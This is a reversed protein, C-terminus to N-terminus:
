DIAFILKEAAFSQAPLLLLMAWLILTKIRM